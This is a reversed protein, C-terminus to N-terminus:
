GKSLLNATVLDRVGPVRNLMKIRKADAFDAGALIVYSFLVAHTAAMVLQAQPLAAAPIMGVFKLGKLLKGVFEMIEKFQATLLEVGEIAKNFNPLESKADRILQLLEDRTKRTEYLKELLEGILSGDKLSNFFDIAREVAVGTLERGLLALISEYAKGIYENVLRYLDSIQQEYGLWRAIDTGVLSSAKMLNFLGISVLGRFASQSQVATQDLVASLADSIGDNLGFRATTVDAAAAARSWSRPTFGNVVTKLYSDVEFMAATRSVGAVHPILGIKEDEAADLLHQSIALDTLAKALLQLQGECRVTPDAARLKAAAAQTLQSSLGTLQQAQQTLAAYNSVVPAGRMVVSQVTATMPMMLGLVGEAYQHALTTYNQMVGITTM